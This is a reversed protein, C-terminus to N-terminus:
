LEEKIKKALDENIGKLKCIDEISANKIKELSGFRKLLEQKKKEGIGYLIM